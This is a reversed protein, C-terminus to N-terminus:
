WLKRAGAAENQDDNASLHKSHTISMKVYAISSGLSILIGFSILLYFAMPTTLFTPLSNPALFKIFMALMILLNGPVGLLLLIIKKKKYSQQLNNQTM